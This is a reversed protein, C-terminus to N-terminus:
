RGKRLLEGSAAKVRSLEEPHYIAKAEHYVRERDLTMKKTKQQAFLEMQDDYHPSQPKNSAGYCNITEIEPLGMKHYRAFAIYCEGITGKMRGDGIPTSYMQALVDPLGALPLSKKGRELRQYEGLTIDITKFHKLLHQKAHQFAELCDQKTMVKFTPDTQYKDAIYYFMVAFVAAGKSDITANRDWRKLIGILDSIEPYEKEDMMFLTDLNVPYALKRPLQVDYKM